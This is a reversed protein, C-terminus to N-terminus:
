KGNKPEVKREFAALLRAHLPELEKLSKQLAEAPLNAGANGYPQPAPPRINLRANLKANSRIDVVKADVAEPESTGYWNEGVLVELPLARGKADRRPAGAPAARLNAGRTGTLNNHRFVLCDDGPNSGLVLGERCLEFSCRLALLAWPGQDYAAVIGGCQRFSCHEFVAAGSALAYHQSNTFTCGLWLVKSAAAQTVAVSQLRAGELRSAAHGYFYISAQPTGPPATEPGTIRSTKGPQAEALLQGVIWLQGAKTADPQGPKGAAEAAPDPRIELVVGPKLTLTRGAPVILIGRVLVPSHEPGAVIDEALEGYLITKFGPVNSPPPVAPAAHKPVPAPASAASDHHPAATKPIRVPLDVVEAPPLGDPTRPPPALYELPDLDVTSEEGCARGAACALMFFILSAHRMTAFRTAVRFSEAMGLRFRADRNQM